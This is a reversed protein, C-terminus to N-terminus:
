SGAHVRRWGRSRRALAALLVLALVLGFGIRWATLLGEAPVRLPPLALPDGVITFAAWERAPAGRALAALKATRLAEAAPQGEAMARYFDDMLRVTARDGIPWWTAAVARAGAELLPAALGQVGEGRVLVGGATRCASLVVLEAALTLSALEAPGIFGDEGGGPALALSTGAVNGEDVFAHTAFHLLGYSTLPAQKLWAASAAGRRRVTPAPAYRAIRRAEQSAAPLRPLSGRTSFASRYLETGGSPAGREGAFQPDALVLLGAPPTEGRREWLRAVVTASPAGAVAFREVVFRGDPLVLADFPLRHLPGDPVVILRRIAPDLDALTPDLLASALSRGLPRPDEGSQLLATFRAIPAALSDQGALIHARAQRRTLVFLTTPDGRGTVYELLATSDDPLAGMLSDLPIPLAIRAVGAVSATNLAAARSLREALERARGREVVEFATALRGDEALAAVVTAVGLDPDTIDAALQFALLRLDRAELQVRWEELALIATRLEHAADALRGQLTLTEALRAGYLYHWANWAESVQPSRERFIREAETLAGERLALVGAHYGHGGAGVALGEAEVLSQALALERRAVPLDGEALAVQLLGERALLEAQVWSLQRAASLVEAHADRAHALEGTALSLTAELHRANVAAYRDGQHDFLARAAAAHMAAAALDGLQFATKALTSRAWPVVQDMRAVGAEVIAEEADRRAHGLRGATLHLYSRWQLAVALGGRDRARRYDAIADSYLVLAADAAGRRGQEMAAVTLCAARVRPARTRTALEVGTMAVELARPNGIFALAQARYCHLLARIHPSTFPVIEEAEDLLRQAAEPGATRTRALALAALAEATLAPDAVTGGATVAQTAVSDARVWDGRAAHLRALGIGAYGAIADAAEGAAPLLSRYIPVAITDRVTHHALTALGLAALRDGADRALRRRWRQEVLDVSDGEVAALAHRVVAAPDPDSSMQLPALSILLTFALANMSLAM